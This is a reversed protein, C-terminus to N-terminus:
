SVTESVTSKAPDGNNTHYSEAGLWKMFDPHQAHLYDNWKSWSFPLGLHKVFILETNVGAGELKATRAWTGGLKQTTTVNSVFENQTVIWQNFSNAATVGIFVCHSPQIIKVVEGFIKWGALFDDWSPREPSGDRAYDMMRQVINYYASDAWLRVRDIETTRFLLRPITDLTRNPWECNILCECVVDRTYNPYVLWKQRNTEREEPTKGHFYHSEGVVLLRQQIPREHFSRGIWPLWTLGDLRGLDADFQTSAEDPNV